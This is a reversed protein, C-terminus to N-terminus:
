KPPAAKHLSELDSLRRRIEARQERSYDVHIATSDLLRVMEPYVTELHTLRSDNREYAHWSLAAALSFGGLIVVRWVLEMRVGVVALRRDAELDDERTSRQGQLPSSM